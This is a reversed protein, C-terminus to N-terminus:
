REFTQQRERAQNRNEVWMNVADPHGEFFLVRAYNLADEEGFLQQGEKETM